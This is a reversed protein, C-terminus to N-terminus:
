SKLTGKLFSNVHRASSGALLGGEVNYFSRSGRADGSSAREGDRPVGRVIGGRVPLRGLRLAGHELRHVRGTPCRRRRILQRGTCGRQGRCERAARQGMPIGEGFSRPARQTRSQRERVPSGLRALGDTFTLETPLCGMTCAAFSLDAMAASVAVMVARRFSAKSCRAREFTSSTADIGDLVASTLDCTAFSSNPATASVLSAGSLRAGFFDSRSLDCHDFPVSDRLDGNRAVLGALSEGPWSRAGSRRAVPSPM